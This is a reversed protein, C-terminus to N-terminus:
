MESLRLFYKKIKEPFNQTAYDKALSRRLEAEGGDRYASYHVAEDAVGMSIALKSEAITAEIEGEFFIQAEKETWHKSGRGSILWRPTRGELYQKIHIWEHYLILQKFKKSIKLSLLLNVWVRLVLVEGYPNIKEIRVNAASHQAAEGIRLILKRMKLLKPLDKQIEPHPHSAILEILLLEKERNSLKKTPIDYSAHSASSPVKVDSSSEEKNQYNAISFIIVVIAILLFANVINTNKNQSKTV